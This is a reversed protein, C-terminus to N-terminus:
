LLTKIKVAFRPQAKSSVHTHIYNLNKVAVARFQFATFFLVRSHGSQSGVTVKSLGSQSGVTRHVLPACRPPARTSVPWCNPMPPAIRNVLCLSLPPTAGSEGEQGIARFWVCRNLTSCGLSDAGTQRQRTRDTETQRQRDRETATQRQRGRDAETQM